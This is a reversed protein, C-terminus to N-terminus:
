QSSAAPSTRRFSTNYKTLARFTESQLPEKTFNNYHTDSTKTKLTSFTTTTGKMQQLAETPSNEWSNASKTGHQAMMHEHEM